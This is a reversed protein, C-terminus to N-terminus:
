GRGSGAGGSRGKAVQEAHHARAADGTLTSGTGGKEKTYTFDHGEGKTTAEKSAGDPNHSWDVLKNNGNKDLKAARDKFAAVAGPKPAGPEAPKTTQAHEHDHSEHSEHAAESAGLRERLFDPLKVSPAIKELLGTSGRFALVSLLELGRARGFEVDVNASSGGFSLGTGAAARTCRAAKWRSKRFASRAAHVRM